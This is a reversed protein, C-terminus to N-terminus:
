NGTTEQEDAEPREILNKLNGLSERYLERASKDLAQRMTDYDKPTMRLAQEMADALVSSNEYIIGNRADFGNIPAFKRAILPPKLFGYILQFSGSTGTTIYREHDPNNEDLLPLFFDAKQIEEYMERFNVRGCVNFSPKLDETLDGLGGKGEQGGKGVITIKFNRWGASRLKQVADVLPVMNRRKDRLAGVTIFNVVENKPRLPINGFYHPNVVVTQLENYDVRRLTITTQDIAKADDKVDHSVCFCKQGPRLPIKRIDIKDTITSILIGKAQGIGNKLLFRRIQQQTMLSLYLRDDEGFISFLGETIREPTILVSVSYGLDLLYKAFGPAVEAHNQSCPEWLLFTNDDITPYLNPRNRKLFDFM